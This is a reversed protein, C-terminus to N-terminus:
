YDVKKFLKSNNIEFELTYFSLFYSKELHETCYINCLVYDPKDIVQNEFNSVINFKELSNLWPANRDNYPQNSPQVITPSIINNNILYVLHDELVLISVEKPNNKDLHESIQTLSYNSIVQKYNALNQVGLLVTNVNLYLVIVLILYNFLKARENILHIGFALYIVLFPFVQIFYHGLLRGGAFISLLTFIFLLTNGLFLLNNIKYFKNKFYLYIVILVFLTILIEISIGENINLRNYLDLKLEDFNSRVSANQIPFKFLMYIYIDLADHHYFYISLSLIPILFGFITYLINKIKLKKITILFIYVGLCSFGLNNRTNYALSFLVGLYIFNINNIDKLILYFSLVIFLLGLHETMTPQSFKYSFLYILFFSSILSVNRLFYLKLIKYTIISIAFIILDGALRGVILSSGFLKFFLALYFFIVPPKGDWFDFYLIKGESLYKSIVFFTSEDWDIVEISISSFQSFFVVLFIFSFASYDAYKKIIM